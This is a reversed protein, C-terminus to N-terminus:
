RILVDIKAIWKTLISGHLWCPCFSGDQVCYVKYRKLKWHQAPVNHGWIQWTVLKVGSSSSCWWWSDSFRVTNQRRISGHKVLNPLRTYELNRLLKWINNTSSSRGQFGSPLHFYYIENQFASFKESHLVNRSATKINIIPFKSRVFYVIYHFHHFRSTYLIELPHTLQTWPHWISDHM